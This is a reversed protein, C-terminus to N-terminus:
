GKLADYLTLAYVKTATVVDSIPVYEDPVHAVTPYGPGFIATPIHAMNILWDADAHYPAGTVIYTMGLYQQAHILHQVIPEDERIISANSNYVLEASAHFDKESSTLRKIIDLVQSYFMEGTEGPVIFRSVRLECEDPVVSSRVGGRIVGLVISGDGTYKNYGPQLKKLESMVKSMSDIANIGEKPTSAHAGKGTTNIKVEIMGESAVVIKLNTAEGNLAMDAVFGDRILKVTGKRSADQVEEEEVHTIAVEGALEIGSGILAKTALIHAVMNAKCDCSGRGYLWDGEIEAGLPDRTWGTGFEVTDTHSNLAIRPGPKKGRCIAIVNGHSDIRTEMGLDTCIEAIRRALRSEDGSLSSIKVFESLMSVVEDRNIRSLIEDENNV